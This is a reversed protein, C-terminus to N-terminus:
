NKLKNIIQINKKAENNNPDLKLVSNYDSLAKDWNKLNYNCFARFNYYEWKAPNLKIANDFANIANKYDKLMMLSYGLDKFAEDYYPYEPSIETFFKMIDNAAKRYEGLQKYAKAREYYITIDTFNYKEYLNFDSIAKQYQKSRVFALGRNRYTNVVNNTYWDPCNNIINNIHPQLNAIAQNYSLLAKNMKNDLFYIYGLNDFPRVKEPSKKSSDLWLSEATKWDSLRIFTLVSLIMVYVVVPYKFVSGYNVKFYHNLMSLLAIFFGAMPLYVRHEFILDHIPIISSEVSITIYFWFIGFSILRNKSATKIAFIILAIHLILPLIVKINILTDFLPYDYDINQSFPVLLKVMYILIVSFQTYLYSFPTIQEGTYHYGSYGMQLLFDTSTLIVFGVLLIIIAPIYIVPKITIKQKFLLLNTMFIFLPLTYFNEKTFAGLIVSIVMLLLYQIKSKGESMKYKLFFLVSFFYLMTVLSALRQYIYVVGQTQMPHLAFILAIFLSFYNIYQRDFKDKLYPSKFVNQIISFLLASNIIHILINVIRFGEPNFGGILHNLGFSLFPIFRLKSYDFINSISFNGDFIKNKLIFPLDDFQFPYAISKIYVAIVAVILLIYAIKNFNNMNKKNNKM